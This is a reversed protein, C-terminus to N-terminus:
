DKLSYPLVKSAYVARLALNTRDLAARFREHNPHDVSGELLNTLYAHQAWLAACALLRCCHYFVEPSRSIERSDARAFEGLAVLADATQHVTVLLPDLTPYM